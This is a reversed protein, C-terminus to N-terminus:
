LGAVRSFDEAWRSEEDETTARFQYLNAQMEDTPFILPEEAIEPDIAVMAERAGKVPCVYYVWAEVTAANEPEYYFNIWLEAQGKNTAGKPIVMNDTWLMGGESPLAFQFDQDGSQEVQLINIVDGSWAMGMTADGRLMVRTYSNGYFGRPIEADVATQLDALSQQFQDETLTNPDFGLKRAALGATDRMETLYTIRGKNAPDWLAALSTIPGTVNQDFGIGTMGSQWPAALNTDPDFSRGIYNDLLNAPFNPTGATNITELWGLRALRAVMWDTVVVIDWDTPLGAGLPAQLDSTFFTENDDVAERYNVEVGTESTFKELTPYSNEDDSIDIYGIWNAFNLTGGGTPAPVETAAVSAGPSVPPASAGSTAAASPRTTQGPAGCAALFAAFGALSSGQLFARRSVPRTLPRSEPETVPHEKREHPPKVPMAPM